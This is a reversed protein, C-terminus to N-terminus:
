NSGTRGVGCFWSAQRGAQELDIRESAVLELQTQNTLQFLLGVVRTRRAAVRRRLWLVSCVSVLKSRGFWELFWNALSARERAAIQASVYLVQPILASLYCM